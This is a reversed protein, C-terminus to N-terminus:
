GRTLTVIGRRDCTAQWGRPVYTSAEDDILLFPGAMGGATRLSPRSVVGDSAAPVDGGTPLDPLAVDAVRGVRKIRLTVIEIARGEPVTGYRGAYAERFAAELASRDAGRARVTLEYSQGKFRLDAYAEVAALQEQPVKESALMNLHGFEAYLRHDDLGDGLHLVTKSADAVPPAAVMGLASLVGCYPPVIVTRIELSEAVACAHLGGAGGFSVLAFGKPDLGRRSTVARVARSMNEEAVRVIGAATAEVTKGIAAALPEIAARALAPDITMQGGAFRDPRLRGLVLNADTVTPEAGGRGYCAPGPTAGASRPGVRLAGGVDLYAVSGGGAGVTHIDLAPLGIPLGDVVGATTWQPQGGVIAAVDTSTGGMDYTIVDAVGAARAVLLAGMVGGAPGSLVLRAASVAADAVSLTGGTSSMIALSFASPLPRLASGPAGSTGPPLGATAAGAEENSRELGTGLANLYAEVRPRLAANIVTTSAREYERFEPLVDSALSVTLGARRCGDAVVREHAPNVYGFLLCVAVHGLGAAVIKGVLADVEREDIPTVVEGGADVRERVTFWHAEDSLPRPRVVHLAYLDPRNQRGILLMDWFGETTVFAVPEGRRELLANTAVTSGHVIEVAAGAVAAGADATTANGTGGAREATARRVAEIVARHFDPPTSPIKVVRLSHGDFAVLDTFTGGVDVGIRLPHTLNPDATM